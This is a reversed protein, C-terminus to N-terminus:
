VALIKSLLSALHKEPVLSSCQCPNTRSGTECFERSLYVSEVMSGPLIPQPCLVLLIIAVLGHMTNVVPSLLHGTFPMCSPTMLLGEFVDVPSFGPAVAWPPYRLRHTICCLQGPCWGGARGQSEM